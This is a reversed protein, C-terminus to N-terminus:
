KATDTTTSDSDASQSKELDDFAEGIPTLDEFLRLRSVARDVLQAFEEVNESNLNNKIQNYKRYIPNNITQIRQEPDEKSVRARVCSKSVHKNFFYGIPQSYKLDQLKEFCIGVGHVSKNTLSKRWDDIESFKQSYESCKRKFKAELQEMYNIEFSNMKNVASDIMRILEQMKLVDYFNSNIVDPNQKIFEDVKARFQSTLDNEEKVKKIDMWNLFKEVTRNYEAIKKTLQIQTRKIPNEFDNMANIADDLMGLLKKKAVVDKNKLDIAQVNQQYFQGIDVRLEHTIDDEESIQNINRWERFKEVRKDYENLKKKLKIGTDDNPDNKFYEMTDIADNLLSNLESMKSIDNYGPDFIEKNNKVFQILDKRLERSLDNEKSIEEHNRWKYFNGGLENYKVIKKILKIQAKNNKFKNMADIADDMLKIAEQIRSSDNCNANLVSPNQNCFERFKENFGGSVLDNKEDIKQSDRWQKYKNRVNTYEGFKNLLKTKIDSNNASNSTGSPVAGVSTVISSTSITAACLVSIINKLIKTKIKM